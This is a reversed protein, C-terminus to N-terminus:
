KELLSALTRFLVPSIRKLRSIDERMFFAEFGNAFYESLSTSGYPSYFLSSTYRRLKDYGVDKHLFYDFEINYDPNIFFSYDKKINDKALVKYMSNRKKLFEQEIKGDGYIRSELKEEVLHAVEHIIDDLMDEESDQNNTVFITSNKYMAEREFNELEEFVGINISRLGSLLRNPIKIFLKKIVNRINVNNPPDDKVFIRLGNVFFRRKEKNEIYRIVTM